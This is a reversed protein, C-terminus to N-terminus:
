RFTMRIVTVESDTGVRMPPGYYGVGATVITDVEHLRKYGWGNENFFPVILNGPFIQGAHTHGSMVVDAGAESLAKYEVPEHELVLVPREPDIGELLEAASMRNATGDGAKEVDIRGALQVGGPLTVVEDTLVTFGSDAFFQEIEPSRFAESIPTLPFGGLLPEEVDHNGYVAYVGYKAQIGRLAQAYQEPHSLGAYTSTFIDGAVLVVDPEQANVLEVMRETMSLRSNVSLHLDGILVVNLQAGPEDAAKDVALDYTVVKTQQAHVMGYVMLILGGAFSLCLVAGALYRFLAKKQSEALGAANEKRGAGRVLRVALAIVGALILLILVLGGFYVYFGLWINGAAALAFKVPGDPLLAGTLPLLVFVIFVTIWYRRMVGHRGATRPWWKLCRDILFVLLANQLLFITLITLM